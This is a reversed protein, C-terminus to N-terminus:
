LRTLKIYSGELINTGGANSTNQAWQLDMVSALTAHSHIYGEIKIAMLNAAGLGDFIFEGTPTSVAVFEESPTGSDVADAHFGASNAANDFQLRMKLDGGNHQALILAEYRYRQNAVLNFGALTDDDAYTTDSTKATADATRHKVQVDDTMEIGRWRAADMSSIILWGGPPITITTSSNKQTTIVEAGSGDVVVDGDSATNMIAIPFGDGATAIDLLTVTVGGTDVVILGGRDGAVVTYNTSKTVWTDFLATGFAALLNTNISALATNLPDALKTKITSWFLQNASSRTGDDSPPSANFGSVAVSSYPNSM